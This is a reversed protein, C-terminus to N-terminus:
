LNDLLYNSMKTYLHYRTNGGMISHNRDKYVHMDFQKGAQVLAEAYEMSQMFHVNDDATGHILLLKGQLDKVKRLPSTAAYGEFNEKPTRMFRETYVSDYYKWDTPPAVAIGVKFTGDGTSLAMLTNYGGFSWGWIAIRNKDIYPLKGLAQAAEVQDKSELEGMRLYTCKRFAEGRAGTGRGDVCVVIIGKNALYQEWDFAYQDLVQQSNPGSYQTMMVPYKKSDDFNAPKVIWANLEYGSATKVTFFEKGAFSYEALKNKLAVNDELVRLVKKSKTDNVTIKAPTTANSYTNVYYAFNDSFVANNMGDETSLKTKVGKADIKYVSRRIPSEEASQYYVAKTVEDIGLFKTVDWNGTTVQRQMVGTPSYLYIHAYGDQESVYTFGNDTFQISTLWESDVYCKNDDRLILRFVGSKPNAYYMNFVNQQRNLTMVALQDPNKTFVIRPIYSDEEIPVNLTKIDKTAVSYSHLTVKSNKQGAKPYKYNYYGPYLDDGYIQMSYEPVESEDFRVFALYESDPSWAMLNVVAFEEEYVWDTIGNLIKNLEGDKTVQVETDYDFKKLWINNDRVYACMRGDPSFTPIMQKSKAETLPKVYNRRVDYDYVVAKTSRRYIPETERWVLIRHGTSNIMYGDFDDFSCERATRTNFLTDVPMGTRYSYKIIMNKDRNMATYHEGDPLSRMEGINTVQRFKGDTIEKLDVQKSGNQAFVSGITVLSLIFCLGLGKM